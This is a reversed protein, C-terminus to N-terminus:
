PAEVVKVVANFYEQNFEVPMKLLVIILDRNELLHAYLGVM